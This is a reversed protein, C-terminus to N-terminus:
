DNLSVLHGQHDFCVYPEGYATSDTFCTDKPTSSPFTSCLGVESTQHPKVSEGACGVLVALAFVLDYARLRM